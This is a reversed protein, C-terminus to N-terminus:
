KALDDAWEEAVERADKETDYGWTGVPITTVLSESTIPQTTGVLAFWEGKHDKSTEIYLKKYRKL